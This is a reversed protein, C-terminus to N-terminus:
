RGWGERLSRALRGTQSPSRLRSLHRRGSEWVRLEQVPGLSERGVRGDMPVTCLPSLLSLLVSLPSFHSSYFYLSSFSSDFHLFLSFFTLTLSPFLPPKVSSESPSPLTVDSLSRRVLCLSGTSEGKEHFSPCLTKVSHVFDRWVSSPRHGSVRSDTRDSPVPFPVFILPSSDLEYLRSSM